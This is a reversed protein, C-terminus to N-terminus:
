PGADAAPADVAPGMVCSLVGTVGCEGEHALICPRRTADYCWGSEAGGTVGGCYGLGCAQCVAICAEIAADGAADTRADVAAAADDSPADTSEGGGGCGAVVVAIV